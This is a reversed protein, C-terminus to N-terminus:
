EYREMLDAVTFIGIQELDEGSYSKNDTKMALVIDGLLPLDDKFPGNMDELFDEVSSWEYEVLTDDYDSTVINLM